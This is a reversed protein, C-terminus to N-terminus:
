CLVHIQELHLAVGLSGHSYCGRYCAHCGHTRRLFHATCVATIPVGSLALMGKPRHGFTGSLDGCCALNQLALLHLVCDLDSCFSGESTLARKNPHYTMGSMIGEPPPLIKLSSIVPQSACLERSREGM